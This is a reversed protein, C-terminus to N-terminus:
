QNQKWGQGKLQPGHLLRGFGGLPIDEQQSLRNLIEEAQQQTIKGAEVAEALRTKAQDLLKQKLQEPSIGQAQAIESLKKGSALQAKLDALSMGLIEALEEGNGRLCGDKGGGMGKCPCIGLSPCQQMRQLMKDAQQQTIQGDKVMQDLTQKAAEQIASSLKSQDIGLVAALKSLFLEGGQQFAMPGTQGPENQAAVSVGTVVLGLVLLLACGLGVAAKAKRSRLM